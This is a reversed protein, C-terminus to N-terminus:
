SYEQWSTISVEDISRECVATLFASALRANTLLPINHDVAGRRISYDNNLEDKSLNKPINIVLDFEKNRIMDMVNPQEAEDPWHVSTAEVGNDALFRQTGATAFLKYGKQVLKRCPEILEIKSRSDGTSLMINKEPLRYGVSVMAALLAENIDSGICGVEGTSAMDVGLVPDALHLRSFSFQSAKVGIYDIDFVTKDPKSYPEGLM